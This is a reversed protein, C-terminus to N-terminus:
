QIDVSVNVVLLVKSISEAHESLASQASKLM